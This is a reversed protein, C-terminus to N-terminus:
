TKSEGILHQRSSADINSLLQNIFQEHLAYSYAQNNSLNSVRFLLGDPILGKFGYKLQELKSQTGGRVIKHGLLTWYTLPEAREGMTTYLHQAPINGFPTKLLTPTDALVQFGQAPYCVEPHHLENADSQDEGYAISLMIADGKDNIFTRSLTQSYIREITEAQQPNIIELNQEPLERWDGFQHPIINELRFTPDDAAIKHTPRAAYAIVSATIMLLMLIMNRVQTSM